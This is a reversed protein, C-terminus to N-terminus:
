PGSRCSAYKSARPFASPTSMRLLMKQSFTNELSDVLFFPVIEEHPAQFFLPGIIRVFSECTHSLGEYPRRSKPTGLVDFPPLSTEIRTSCGTRAPAFAVCFPVPPVENDLRGVLPLVKWCVPGNNGLPPSFLREPLRSLYDRFFTFKQLVDSLM